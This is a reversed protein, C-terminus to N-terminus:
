RLALEPKPKPWIWHQLSVPMPELQIAGTPCREACAGCGMCAERLVVHIQKAAGVIGDTTCVKLCRCCGTCLSEKIVAIRPGEDHGADELELGLHKALLPVLTAGGAPCLRPGARGSALAEAAGLCGAFGCQGCNTGPLLALLASVQGEEAVAFVRAALGLGLGLILGLGTLSLIATMLDLTIM